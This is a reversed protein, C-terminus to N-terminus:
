SDEWKLFRFQTPDYLAVDNPILLSVSGKGLIPGFYVRGPDNIMPEVLVILDPFDHNLVEYRYPTVYDSPFSGPLWQYGRQELGAIIARTKGPGLATKRIIPSETTM